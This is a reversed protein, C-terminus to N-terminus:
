LRGRKTSFNPVDPAVAFPPDNMMAAHEEEARIQDWARGTYAAIAVRKWFDARNLLHQSYRLAVDGIANRISMAEFEGPRARGARM